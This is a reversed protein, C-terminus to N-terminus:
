LVQRGRGSFQGTVGGYRGPPGPVEAAWTENSVSLPEPWPATPAPQYNQNQMQTTRLFDLLGGGQGGYTNPDFFSDLLGM